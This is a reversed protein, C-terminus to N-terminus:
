ELWKKKKVIFSLVAVVTISLAIVFVYGYKWNFEPMSQFNMGYWGVIVTLPFFITTIVTFIKMTKNLKLDLFSQYADQLHVVASRLSDIDERLREIRGTLNSVYRLDETFIENEDEELTESIDILQDYYNHMTLLEKKMQLLHLNFDAGAKDKFVEEELATIEFGTDEIYKTDGCILADLFSYILKELTINTIPYRRLSELFKDRTSCDYDEIDVVLLLNKKVYLAVCDDNGSINGSNKIRLETFTYNDYVEVGSRFYANANTCAEVTSRGFGLAEYVNQLEACTVYGATLNNSNINNVDITVIDDNFEYFM